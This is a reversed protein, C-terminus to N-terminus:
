DKKGYRHEKRRKKLLVVMGVLSGIFVLMVAGLKIRDGTDLLIDERDGLIGRRIKKQEGEEAAKTESTTESPIEVVGPTEQKIVTKDKSSSSSGSTYHKKDDKKDPTPKSEELNCKFIWKTKTKTLAFENKLEEPVHVTYTLKTHEGKAFTGLLIKGDTVKSMPGKFIVVDKNKITLIIKDLLKGDDVNETYFWIQVPEAYSNGVTVEGTMTDGPMLAGWNMFFDDGVRVLGEAGGEFEVSFVSDGTTQQVGTEDHTCKEIETGFWPDTDTASWDPVFNDYQVADATFRLKFTQSKIENGWDVPFTVTQSFDVSEGHPLMKMYYWYDGVKIWDASIGGLMVDSLGLGKEGFWEPKIRIWCDAAENTIRVIKSVTQGPRITKYNQYPLEQGNANLEYEKLTINVDGISVNNIVETQYEAAYATQTYPSCLMLVSALAMFIHKRM